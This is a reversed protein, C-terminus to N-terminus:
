KKTAVVRYFVNKDVPFIPVEHIHVKGEYKKPTGLPVDEWVVLDYSEQFKFNRDKLEYNFGFELANTLGIKTFKPLLSPLNSVEGVRSFAYDIANNYGDGDDDDDPREDGSSWIAFIM